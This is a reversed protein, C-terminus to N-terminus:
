RRPAFVVERRSACRADSQCRLSAPQVQLLERATPIWVSGFAYFAKENVALESDLEIPVGGPELTAPDFTSLVIAGLGVEDVSSDGGTVPLCKTIWGRPGHLILYAPVCGIARSEKEIRGTKADRQQVTNTGITWLSGGAITQVHAYGPVDHVRYTRPDIQWLDGNVGSAWMEGGATAISDPFDLDTIIRVVKGSDPDIRQITGDGLRKGEDAVWISGRFLTISTPRSAISAMKMTVGSPFVEILSGMSDDQRQGRSGTAVWLGIRSALVVNFAGLHIDSSAGEPRGSRPDVRWLRSIHNRDRTLAIVDRSGATAAAVTGRLKIHNALRLIYRRGSVPTSATCAVVILMLSLAVGGVLPRHATPAVRVEVRNM